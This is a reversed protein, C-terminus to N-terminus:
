VVALKAHSSQKPMPIRCPVDRPSKTTKEMAHRHAIKQQSRKRTPARPVSDPSVAVVPKQKKENLLEFVSNTLSSNDDEDAHYYDLNSLSKNNGRNKSQLHLLPQESTQVDGHLARDLNPCSSGLLGEVDHELSDARQLATSGMGISSVDSSWSKNDCSHESSGSFFTKTSSSHGSEPAVFGEELVYVEGESSGSSSEEDEEEQVPSTNSHRSSSTSAAAYLSSHWSGFTSARVHKAHSSVNHRETKVRHRHLRSVTGSANSSSSANSSTDSPLAELAALSESLRATTSTKASPLKKSNSGRFHPFRPPEVIDDNTASRLSSSLRSRIGRPQKLSGGLLPNHKHKPKTNATIPMSATDLLM